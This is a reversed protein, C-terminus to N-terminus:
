GNIFIKNCGCCEIQATTDNPCPGSPDIRGCNKCRALCKMNHDSNSHYPTECTLCYARVRLLTNLSKIADFHDETFLICIQTKYVAVDSSYYPKLPDEADFAFLRFEGPYLQNYYEQIKPGYTEIEYGDPCDVVNLVRMLNNVAETQRWADRLFRSFVMRNAAQAKFRLLEIARFLCYSDTDANRIEHLGQRNIPVLVPRFRRRNRGAGVRRRRKKRSSGTAATNKPHPRKKTASPFTTADITFKEGFLTAKGKAKNSQDLIMFRHLLSEAADTNVNQIHVHLDTDLNKSSLRVIMKRADIGRERANSILKRVCSNIIERLVGEPNIAEEIKELIFKSTLEL